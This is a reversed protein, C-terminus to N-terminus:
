KALSADKIVKAVIKAHALFVAHSSGKVETVQANARKYMWRELDPNITKDAGAVIAWTPKDKWAAVTAPTTFASAAVFVQSDAMFKVLAPPGDAAFTAPFRAPDVYLFGDATKKVDNSVPPFSSALKDVSEGVDPVLAAVYVLSKVKPDVGAETIVQGGWSHGVLVVPGDQLALIRKVAAVDDALGTAPEQVVTVKYGDKTLIDYVGKWGSGDAFVGHVLVVNKIAGPPAAHAAGIAMSMAVGAVVMQLRSM